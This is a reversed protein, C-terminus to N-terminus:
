PAGPAEPRWAIALTATIGTIAVGLLALRRTSRGTGARPREGRLARDLDDRLAAGGAYRASPDKALCAGLIREVSRPVEPRLSRIGAPERLLVNGVVAMASSGEFPARGALMEYLVGGAGWVDTAPALSSVEGRAQEPSMYEPTGLAQGTRTLKSGTAITRALGFDTLFPRSPDFRPEEM